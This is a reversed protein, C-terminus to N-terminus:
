QKVEMNKGGISKITLHLQKLRRRCWEALWRWSSTISQKLGQAIQDDTLPLPAAAAVPVVNQGAPTFGTQSTKSPLAVATPQARVGAGTVEPPLEVETSIEKLAGVGVTPIVVEVEKSIGGGTVPQPQAQFNGQDTPQATPDM